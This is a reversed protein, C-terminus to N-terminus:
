LYVVSAVSSTEITESLGASTVISVKTLGDYSDFVGEVGRDQLRLNVRKGRSCELSLLQKMVGGFDGSELLEYLRETEQLISCFLPERDIPSGLIELLSASTQGIEKMATTHFNANIGMGLLAYELENGKSKAEVLVGSLKRHDVVVDNPWRVRSRVGLNSNMAKAIALAGILPLANVSGVSFPARFLVTLWMGGKPSIWVRGQRGRGASQEEAIVTFGHPAGELASQAAADNTSTCGQLVVLSRGLKKTRLGKVISNDDLAPEHYANVGADEGKSNSPPKSM